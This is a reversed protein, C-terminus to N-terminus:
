VNQLFQILNFNQEIRTFLTFTYTGMGPLSVDMVVVDAQTRRVADELHDADSMCGVYDIDGTRELRAKLGEALIPHDDVCLVRVHMSKIESM